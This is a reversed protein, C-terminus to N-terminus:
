KKVVFFFVFWYNKNDLQENLVTVTKFVIFKKKICVKKKRKQSSEDSIKKQKQKM